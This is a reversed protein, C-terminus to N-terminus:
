FYAIHSLGDIILNFPTDVKSSGRQELVFNILLVFWALKLAATGSGCPETVVLTTSELPTAVVDTLFM